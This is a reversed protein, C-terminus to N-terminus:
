RQQDKGAWWVPQSQGNVRENAKSVLDDGSDSGKEEQSENPGLESIAVDPLRRLILVLNSLLDAVQHTSMAELQALTFRTQQQKGNSSTTM